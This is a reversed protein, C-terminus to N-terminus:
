RRLSLIWDVGGTIVRHGTLVRYLANFRHAVLICSSKEASILILV